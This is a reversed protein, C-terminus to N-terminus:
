REIHRIFQYQHTEIRSKCAQPTLPPRRVLRSRMRRLGGFWFAMHQAECDPEIPILSQVRDAGDEDRHHALLDSTDLVVM